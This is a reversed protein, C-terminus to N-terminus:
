TLKTVKGGGSTANLRFTKHLVQWIPWGSAILYTRAHKQGNKVHEFNPDTRGRGMRHPRHHSPSHEEIQESARRKARM